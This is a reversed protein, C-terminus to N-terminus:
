GCDCFWSTLFITMKDAPTLSEIVLNVANSLRVISGIKILDQLVVTYIHWTEREPYLPRQLELTKWSTPQRQYARHLSRLPTSRSTGWHWLLKSEALDEIRSGTQPSYWRSYELNSFRSAWSLRQDLLDALLVLISTEIIVRSKNRVPGNKPM